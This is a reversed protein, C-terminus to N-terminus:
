APSGLMVYNRKCTRASTPTLAKCGYARSRQEAQRVRLALRCSAPRRCRLPDALRPWRMSPAEETQKRIKKASSRPLEHGMESTGSRRFHEPPRQEQPAHYIAWLTLEAGIIAPLANRTNSAWALEATDVAYTDM